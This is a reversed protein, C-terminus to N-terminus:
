DLEWKAQDLSAGDWANDKSANTTFFSTMGLM